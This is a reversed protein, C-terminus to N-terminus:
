ISGAQVRRHEEGAFRISWRSARASREEDSLDGAQSLIIQGNAASVTLDGSANVRLKKAGEFHLKVPKSDAGPALIFDYELQRQNGYYVLDVGPYVSSYKVKAYTPVHGHWKSPDNGTLYNAVGPLKDTGEVHLDHSAGALEMRVVDTKGLIPLTKAPSAEPNPKGSPANKM